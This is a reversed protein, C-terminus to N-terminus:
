DAPAPRCRELLRRTWRLPATVRWSSSDYLAQVERQAALTEQRAQNALRFATSVDERGVALQRSAEGLAEGMAALREELARGYDQKEELQREFWVKEKLRVAESEQVSAELTAIWAGLEAERAAFYSKDRQLCEGDAVEQRGCHRILPWLESFDREVARFLRSFEEDGPQLEDRALKGLLQYLRLLAPFGDEHARLAADDFHGHRLDQTLVQEGFETYTREDFGLGLREAMRRLTARPGDVLCDYDVVLMHRSSAFYLARYSYEYWLLLGKSLSFADRRLLSTAVSLPNRVPLVFSLEVDLEELVPAWVDMLRPLRPDKIGFQAHSGLRADLLEVLAQRVEPYGAAALLRQVEFGPSSSPGGVLAHLRENLEVIQRDEWFGKPNDNRPALLFNGFEVGLCELAASMVSTGSRHMGLVVIVRKKMRHKEMKM